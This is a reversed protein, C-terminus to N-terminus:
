VPYYHGDAQRDMSLGGIWLLSRRYRVVFDGQRHMAVAPAKKHHVQVRIPLMLLLAPLLTLSYVWATVCTISLLASM